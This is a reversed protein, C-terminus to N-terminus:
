AEELSCQLPFGAEKSTRAVMEIKTEAIDRAYVGCVGSGKKHVDNTIKIAEPVSKGFIATLIGVVFDFTTYDDNLLLVRYLPPVRVKEELGSRTLTDGHTGTDDM